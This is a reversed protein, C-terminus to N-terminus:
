QEVYEFTNNKYKYLYKMNVSKDNAVYFEDEKTFDVNGEKYDAAWTKIIYDKFSKMIVDDNNTIKIEDFGKTDKNYKWKIGDTTVGYNGNTDNVWSQKNKGNKLCWATFWTENDGETTVINRLKEYEEALKKDSDSLTNKFKEWEESSKKSFKEFNEQLLKEDEKTFTDGKLGTIFPAIIGKWLEDVLSNDKLFQKWSTFQGFVGAPIQSFEPLQKIINDIWENKLIQLAQTAPLNQENYDFWNIKNQKFLNILSELGSGASRFAFWISQIYIPLIVAHTTYRFIINAIVDTKAGRSIMVNRWEKTTRADLTLVLRGLAKWDVEKPNKFFLLGPTDTFPIRFPSAKKTAAWETKFAYWFEKKKFAADFLEKTRGEREAASLISSITIYEKPQLKTKLLSKWYDFFTRPMSGKVNRISSVIQSCKLVDSQYEQGFKPSEPRVTKDLISEVYTDFEKELDNISKFSRKLVQIMDQIDSANTGNIMESFVKSINKPINTLKSLYHSLGKGTDPSPIPPEKFKLYEESYNKWAKETRKGYKGYYASGESINKGNYWNEKFINLWDQFDQIEKLTTPPNPVPVVLDPRTKEFAKLIDDGFSAKIIRKGRAVNTLVLNDLLNKNKNVFKEAFSPSIKSVNKILDVLAKGDGAVLKETIYRQLRVSFREGTQSLVKEAEITAARDFFGTIGKFAKQLDTTPIGAEILLNSEMIVIGKDNNMIQHIRTLEEILIKSDM